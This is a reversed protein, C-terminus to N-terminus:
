ELPIRSVTPLGDQPSALLILEKGRVCLAFHTQANSEALPLVDSVLVRYNGGQELVGLVMLKADLIYLNGADDMTMAAIGSVTVALPAPDLPEKAKEAADVAPLTFLKGERSAALFLVGAEEEGMGAATLRDFAPYIREETSVFAAMVTPDDPTNKVEIVTGDLPFHHIVTTAADTETDTELRNLVYITDQHIALGVPNKIGFAVVEAGYARRQENVLLRIIRGSAKEPDASQNDCVYLNGDDGFRIFVPNATGTVPDIPSVSWLTCKGEPSVRMLVPPHDRDATNPCALLVDDWPTLVADAATPCIEPLTFLLETKVAPPAVAEAVEAIDAALTEAADDAAKVEAAETVEAAAELAAEELAATDQPFVPASFATLLLATLSFIFLKKTTKM